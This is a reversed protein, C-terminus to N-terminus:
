PLFLFRKAEYFAELAFEIHESTHAASVQTRLRAKGHPVVPYSFAAVFVRQESLYRAMATALQASGLMVPVIPHDVGGLVFGLKSLGTRLQQTRARLNSRLSEGNKALNIAEITASCIAPMLANSFLYPRATQRLWGILERRGAVYGGSAGGLAKGFTGTLIDVQDEVGHLTPTGRGEPGLLGVAHSDDVMVLAGHSKALDCIAPLNAVIGDMSFVGDTVVLITRAGKAAKLARRLDQMDNNEFRFRNARCLRVGDIISAHNLSDSVIADEEGLITEFLGTNADFCSGFLVADETRLYASLQKELDMHVQHTGSIFRVSAMGFGYRQIGAIAAAEIRSDGALGLYNNACLNLFPRKAEGRLEIEAGQRKEIPWEKKYLGHAELEVTKATLRALLSEMADTM